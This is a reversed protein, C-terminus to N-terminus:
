NKINQTEGGTMTFKNCKTKVRERQHIMECNSWKDSNKLWRCIISLEKSIKYKPGGEEEM